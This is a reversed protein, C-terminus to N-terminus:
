TFGQWIRNSYPIGEKALVLLGKATVPRTLTHYSMNALFHFLIYNKLAVRSKPIILELYNLQNTKSGMKEGDRTHVYM